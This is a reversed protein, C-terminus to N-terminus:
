RRSENSIEAGHLRPSMTSDSANTAGPLTKLNQQMEKKGGEIIMQVETPGTSLHAKEAADLNTWGLFFLRRYEACDRALLGNLM